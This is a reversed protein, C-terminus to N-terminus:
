AARYNTTIQKNSGPRFYEKYTSLRKTTDSGKHDRPSYGMLRRQGHFKRQGLISSHTAMEEQPSRGLGPILGADRADGANTPLNKVM